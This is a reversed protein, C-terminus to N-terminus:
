PYMLYKERIQRFRDLDKEWNLQIVRPDTGKKLADLVAANGVLRIYKDVEWKQPYLKYLAAAVEIGMRVADLAARDTVTIRVGQCTTGKFVSSEPTFRAPMCRVGPINRRNLYAALETSNIYPAGIIEFPSDTGRGVSLNTTELTGIGPYLTAEMLNRINPSPNIWPLSTADYWLSRKWGQLPVVELDANIGNEKNFMRAMEGMTMGHRIPMTFYGTFSRRDRDLVPGEVKEGGIPNPRDLIMIKIHNKAVAELAYGMTTTYTYFRAGIDQIDYVLVDIGKLHADSPRRSAESQGYLSYIPLGTKADTGSAVFEDAAGRIGHEPSFLAVLKVGPAKHLRDITSNWQRDTGTHNTILGVRRGKLRAFNEKSLVDIGTLVAATEGAPSPTPAPPREQMRLTATEWRVDSLAAAIINAVKSRLPGADGKGNPHVRNTLLIVYTRTAPDIWLSTGTWGTHGFSGLPFFDGRNASFSTAMDWGYGRLAPKGPPSQPSAMALVTLPSFVRVGRYEGLNLIMEAYVAIDEATSFLGAHGAIGGMRYATPDHVEGRLWFSDATQKRFWQDNIRETPAIRPRWATPPNFATNKMGLPEFIKQAAFADLRQGSIRYVLEGLVEFGIDSYIFREDPAAVPVEAWIRQLAEAYGTWREQMDLDPRLGSYHTLLQRVTIREKGSGTFEPIYTVVRENLRIKGQEALKLVSSATAVVKTISAMDFVTDLTMAEPKPELARRGFARCYLTRGQQGVWVVAGPIEKRAIAEEVAAVLDRESEAPLGPAEGFAAFSMLILILTLTSTTATRRKPM